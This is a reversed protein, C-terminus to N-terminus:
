PQLLYFLRSFKLWEINYPDSCLSVITTAKYRLIGLMKVLKKLDMGMMPVTTTPLIIKFVNAM